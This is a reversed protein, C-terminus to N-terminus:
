SQLTASNTKSFLPIGGGTIHELGVEVFVYKQEDSINLAQLLLHFLVSRYARWQFRMENWKENLHSIIKVKIAKEDCLHGMKQTLEKVIAQPGGMCPEMKVLTEPETIHLGLLHVTELNLRLLNASSLATSIFPELESLAHSQQTSNRMLVSFSRANILLSKESQKKEPVSEEKSTLQAQWTM